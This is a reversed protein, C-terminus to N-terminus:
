KKEVIYDIYGLTVKGGDKRLGIRKRVEKYIIDFGNEEFHKEAEFESYFSHLIEKGHEFQLYEGDRVKKGSTARNDQTSAFNIFALGGKKLVRNIEKISKNVDNKSMHFISNYSYAFGFLEDEFPLALMNGELINLNLGYKEEFGKALEIQKKDLEVGHTEYGLNSFIALPPMPGGAGCDLVKKELGKGSCYLLFTYLQSHRFIEKM